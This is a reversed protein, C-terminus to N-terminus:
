ASFTEMQHRWWTTRGSYEPKLWVFYSLIWHVEKLCTMNLMVPVGMVYKCTTKWVEGLSPPCPMTSFTGFYSRSEFSINTFKIFLCINRVSLNVFPAETVHVLNTSRVPFSGKLCCSSLRHHSDPTPETILRFVGIIPIQGSCHPWQDSMHDNHHNLRTCSDHQAACSELGTFRWQHLHCLDNGKWM